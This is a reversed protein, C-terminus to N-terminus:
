VAGACGARLDNDMIPLKQKYEGNRDQYWDGVAKQNYIICHPCVTAPTSYHIAPNGDDESFTKGCQKCTCNRM